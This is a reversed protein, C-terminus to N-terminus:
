FNITHGLDLYAGTLHYHSVVTLLEVHSEAEFPSFMHLELAPADGQASMGCTAYTWMNRLKHPPFILVRCEPGLESTPGLKWSSSHSSQLWCREYHSTILAATNM